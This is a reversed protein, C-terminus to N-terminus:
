PMADQFRLLSGSRIPARWRGPLNAPHARQGIHRALSQALPTFRPAPVHGPHGTLEALGGPVGALVYGGVVAQSERWQRLNEGTVDTLARM